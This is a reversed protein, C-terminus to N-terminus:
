DEPEQDIMEGGTTLWVRGRQWHTVPVMAPILIGYKSIAWGDQIAQKKHSHVWGHCWVGGDAGMLNNGFGCLTIRNSFDDPGGDGKFLRHHCNSDRSDRVSRGCRFCHFDDRQRVLEAITETM